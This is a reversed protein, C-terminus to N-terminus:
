WRSSNRRMLGFPFLAWGIASVALGALLLPRGRVGPAATVPVIMALCAILAYSVAAAFVTREVGLRPLAVFGALLAGSMAGITNALTLKGAAEAAEGCEERQAAGLLTFLLGSLVSTPLMLRLFLALAGAIDDTTFM